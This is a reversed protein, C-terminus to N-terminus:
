LSFHARAFTAPFLQNAAEDPPSRALKSALQFILLATATFPSLPTESYFPLWSVSAPKANTAARYLYLLRPNRSHM